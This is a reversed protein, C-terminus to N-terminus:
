FINNLTWFFLRFLNRGSTASVRLFLVCINRGFVFASCSKIGNQILYRAQILHLLLTLYSWAFSNGHCSVGDGHWRHVQFIQMICIVLEGWSFILFATSQTGTYVRRDVSVELINNNIVQKLLNFCNRAFNLTLYEM